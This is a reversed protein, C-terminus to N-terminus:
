PSHSSPEEGELADTWAANLFDLIDTEEPVGSLVGVQRAIEQRFEDTSSDPLHFTVERDAALRRAVTMFITYLIV